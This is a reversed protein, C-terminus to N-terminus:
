VSNQEQQKVNILNFIRFKNNNFDQKEKCNENKNKILLKQLNIDNNKFFNFKKLQETIFNTDINNNQSNNVIKTIKM